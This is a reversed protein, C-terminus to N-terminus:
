LDRLARDRDQQTLDELRRLPASLRRVDAPRPSIAPAGGQEPAVRDSPSRLMAATLAAAGAVSGM